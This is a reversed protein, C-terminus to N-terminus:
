EGIELIIVNDKIEAIRGYFGGTTIVSDGRKLNNLMEKHSKAKKQQPRILLFYFIVFMFGSSDTGAFGGRIGSGGSEEPSGWPRQLASVLWDMM